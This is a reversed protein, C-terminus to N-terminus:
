IEATNISWKGSGSFAYGFVTAPAKVIEQGPLHRLIAEVERAPVCLFLAPIGLRNCHGATSRIMSAADEASRYGFCSLHASVMESGDSHFLFKGRRTDELVGCAKARSEILGIPDMRSRISSDGGDTAFRDATLQGYLARASAVNGTSINGNAEGGLASSPIRLIMLKALEEFRPIGLRGTYSAPSKATGDMVVCFAPTPETLTWDTAARLLRLLTRGAASEAVKLDSIYGARDFQGGPQRLRCITSTVTGVVTSDQMAVFCRADGIAFSVPTILGTRFEFGRM